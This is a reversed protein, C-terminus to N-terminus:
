LRNWMLSLTLLFKSYCWPNLKSVSVQCKKPKVKLDLLLFHDTVYFPLLTKVSVNVSATDFIKCQCDNCLRLFASSSLSKWLHSLYSAVDLRERILIFLGLSIRRFFKTLLKISIVVPFISMRYRFCILHSNELLNRIFPNRSCYLVSRLGLTPPIINNTLSSIEELSRDM